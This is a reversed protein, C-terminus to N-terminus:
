IMVISKRLNMVKDITEPKSYNIEVLEVGLKSFSQKSPDRTGARIVIGKKKALEEVVHQGVNGTAGSVLVVRKKSAPLAAKTDTKTVPAPRKQADKFAQLWEQVEADTKGQFYYVRNVFTRGQSSGESAQVSFLHSILTGFATKKVTTAFSAKSIDIM